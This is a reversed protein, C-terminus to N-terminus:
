KRGGGSIQKASFYFIESTNQLRCLYKGSTDDYGVVIFVLSGIRFKYGRKHERM